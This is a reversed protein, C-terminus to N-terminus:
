EPSHGPQLFQALLLALKLAQPFEILTESLAFDLEFLNKALTVFVLLFLPYEADPLQHKRVLREPLLFLFFLPGERPALM